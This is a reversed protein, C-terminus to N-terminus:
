TNFVQHFIENLCQIKLVNFNPNKWSEGSGMPKGKDDSHDDELEDLTICNELDVPFDPEEQLCVCLVYTVGNAPDGPELQVTFKDKFVIQVLHQTLGTVQATIPQNTDPSQTM